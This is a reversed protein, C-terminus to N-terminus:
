CAADDIPAIRVVTLGTAVSSSITRWNRWVPARQSTVVDGSAGASSAAASADPVAPVKTMPAPGSAAGPARCNSTTPEAPPAPGRGTATLGESTAKRGDEPP